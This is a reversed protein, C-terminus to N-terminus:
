NVVVSQRVNTDLNIVDYTGATGVNCSQGGQCVESYSPTRLVQVYDSTTWRIVKGEISVGLPNKSAPATIKIDTRVKTGHNIVVYEGAEKVDCSKGGRCVENFDPKKQVQHWGSVTWSIVTGNVTYDGVKGGDNGGGDNGDNSSNEVDRRAILKGGICFYESYVGTGTDQRFLLQNAPGYLSYVAEYGSKKVRLGRADYAYETSGGSKVLQNAANWSLDKRVKNSEDKLREHSTMNGQSDYEYRRHSSNSRVGTLQRSSNNYEFDFRKGGRQIWRIDDNSHYGYTFDDSNSISERTLRNRQDYQLTVYRKGVTDNIRSVNAAADYFYVREGLAQNSGNGYKQLRHKQARLGRNLTTKIQHGDRRMLKVTNNHHYDIESYIVKGAGGEERISMPNGFSNPDFNYTRGSPYTIREVGGLEDYDFSVVYVKGDISLAQRKVNNENDYEYDIRNNQKNDSSTTIEESVNGYSDYRFERTVNPVSSDSFHAKKLRDDDYYEYSVSRGHNSREKLKGDPYYFFRTLGNEPQTVTEILKKDNYEYVTTMNSRKHQRVRGTGIERSIITVTNDADSIRIPWSYHPM